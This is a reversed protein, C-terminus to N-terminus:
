RYHFDNGKYPNINPSSSPSELVAGKGNPIESYTAHAWGCFQRLMGTLEKSSKDSLDSSVFVDVNNDQSCLQSAAQRLQAKHAELNPDLCRASLKMSVGAGNRFMVVNNLNLVMKGDLDDRVQVTTNSSDGCAGATAPGMFSLASLCVLASSITFNRISM